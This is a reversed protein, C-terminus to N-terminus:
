QLQQKFLGLGGTKFKFVLIGVVIAGLIGAAINYWTLRKKAARLETAFLYKEASVTALCKQLSDAEADALHRGVLAARYGANARIVSDMNLAVPPCQVVQRRLDVPRTDNPCDPTVTVMGGPLNLPFALIMSDTYRGQLYRLYDREKKSQEDAVQQATKCGALLLILILLRTM